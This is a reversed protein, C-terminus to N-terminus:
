AVVEELGDEIERNSLKTSRYCFVLIGFPLQQMLAFGSVSINLKHNYILTVQNKFM